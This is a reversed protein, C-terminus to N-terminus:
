SMAMGFWSTAGIIMLATIGCVSAYKFFVTDGHLERVLTAGDDTDITLSPLGWLSTARGLWFAVLGYEGGGFGIGACLMVLPYIGGHKIVTLLGIGIHAGWMGAATPFGFERFWAKNTQRNWQPMPFSPWSVERVIMAAAVIAGFGILAAKGQLGGVTALSAIALGTMFATLTGCATYAICCKLWMRYSVRRLPAIMGIHSLGCRGNTEALGCIYAAVLLAVVVYNALLLSVAVGLGTVSVVLLVVAFRTNSGQRTASLREVTGAQALQGM